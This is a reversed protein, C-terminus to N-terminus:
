ACVAAAPVGRLRKATSDLGHESDLLLRQLLTARVPRPLFTFVVPRHTKIDATKVVQLQALDQALDETLLGDCIVPAHGQM